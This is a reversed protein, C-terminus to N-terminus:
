EPQTRRDAFVVEYGKRNQKDVWRELITWFTFLLTNPGFCTGQCRAQFFLFTPSKSSNVFQGPACARPIFDAFLM